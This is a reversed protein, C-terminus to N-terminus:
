PAPVTVQEISTNSTKWYAACKPCTMRGDPATLWGVKKAWRQLDKLTAIPRTLTMEGPQNGSATVCSPRGCKDSIPAQNDCHLEIWIGM